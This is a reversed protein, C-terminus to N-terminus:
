RIWTPLQVSVLGAPSPTSFMAWSPPPPPWPSVQEVGVGIAPVPVQGKSVVPALTLPKAPEPAPLQRAPMWLM